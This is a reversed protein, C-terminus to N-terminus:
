KLNVEAFFSIGQQDNFFWYWADNNDQVKLERLAKRYLKERERQLKAIQKQYARAVKMRTSM